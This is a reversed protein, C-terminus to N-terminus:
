WKTSSVRAFVPKHDGFVVKHVSADMKELLSKSAINLYQYTLKNEICFGISIKGVELSRDTVIIDYLRPVGGSIRSELLSTECDFCNHTKFEKLFGDEAEDFWSDRNDYSSACVNADFLGIVVSPSSRRKQLMIEQLVELERTNSEPSSPTLHANVFTFERKGDRDQQHILKIFHVGHTLGCDKAERHESMVCHWEEANYLIPLSLCRANMVKFPTNLVMSELTKISSCEQICVVAMASSRMMLEERFVQVRGPCLRQKDASENAHNMNWSGVNFHLQPPDSPIPVSISAPLRPPLPSLVANTEFRQQKLRLWTHHCLLFHAITCHLSQQSIRDILTLIGHASRLHEIVDMPAPNKSQLPLKPNVHRGMQMIASAGNRRLTYEPFPGIKPVTRFRPILPKVNSKCLKCEHVLEAMCAEFSDQYRRSLDRLSEITSTGVPAHCNESSTPLSMLFYALQVCYAELASQDRKENDARQTISSLKSMAIDVAKGTEGDDSFMDGHLRGVDRDIGRLESLLPDLAEICVEVINEKCNKLKLASNESYLLGNFIEGAEDDNEEFSENNTSISTANKSFLNELADGDGTDEPIPQYFRCITGTQANQFVMNKKSVARQIIDTGNNDMEQM